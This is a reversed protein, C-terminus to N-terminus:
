RLLHGYLKLEGEIKQCLKCIEQRNEPPQMENYALNAPIARACLTERRNSTAHVKGMITGSKWGVWHM